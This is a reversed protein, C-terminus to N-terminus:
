SALKKNKDRLEQILGDLGKQKIIGGFSSRFTGVFNIQAVEINYARWQTDRRNSMYVNVPYVQGDQAKLTAKVVVKDTGPKMAVPLYEVKEEGTYNLMQTAYTYMLHKKFVDAFERKQEATARKSNERGLILNAMRDVHIVPILTDDIMKFLQGKDKAYVARNTQINEVMKNVTQKVVVEPSTMSKAAAYNFVICMTLIVALCSKIHKQLTM